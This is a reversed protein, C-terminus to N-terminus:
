GRIKSRLKRHFGIAFRHADNNALLIDREYKKRARVDGIIERPRHHEDKVVGVVPIYVGADKLVAKASNLQSKGGDVVFLRPLPWDTHGLRRSLIEGLAGPDDGKRTTKLKFKRYEAKRLEGGEVVIMVGVSNSGGLHAVDYAEIRFARALLSNNPTRFEEKILSVDQIHKIAFLRRKMIEAKEFEQKKVYEKMEKELRRILQKKKGEFFLRIHQITKEYDKKNLSRPYIGIQQNFQLKKKEPSYELRQVSRKTDYFPFIKRILRMAEKFLGGQPFPGFLYKIDAEDFKRYLDNGRVTLVRPFDENTIVVFNFSKDDKGDTNYKPKYNNILNAELILAELVSDTVRYEVKKAKLVMEAILESRAELIDGIFYSRVRNKLSTAKGIYFIKKRPGLFFYVGPADPLKAKDVDKLEM